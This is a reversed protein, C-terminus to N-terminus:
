AYPLYEKGNNKLALNLLKESVEKLKKFDKNKRAVEAQFSLLVIGTKWSAASKKWSNEAREFYKDSSDIKGDYGDIVALAVLLNVDDESKFTRVFDIHARAEYIRRQQLLFYLERSYFQQLFFQDKSKRALKIGQELAEGKEVVSAVENLTPVLFFYLLQSETSISPALQRLQSLHRSSAV